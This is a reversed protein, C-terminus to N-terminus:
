MTKAAILGKGSLDKLLEVADALAQEPTVEFEDVLRVIVQDLPHGQQLHSWIRAGVPDLGFYTGTRLDLLVFEEGVERSIVHGPIQFASQPDM